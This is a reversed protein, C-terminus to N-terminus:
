GGIWRETHSVVIMPTLAALGGFAGIMRYAYASDVRVLCIPDPGRYARTGTAEDIPNAVTTATVTIDQLRWGAVRGPTASYIDGSIALNRAAAVVETSNIAEECTGAVPRPTRAAYRAADRVGATVAQHQLFLNAFEFAGLGLFLLVPLLLAAEVVVGGNRNGLLSHPQPM